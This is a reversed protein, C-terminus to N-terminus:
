RWRRPLWWHDDRAGDTPREEDAEAKLTFYVAKGTATKQFGWNASLNALLTLGRGDEADLPAHVLVPESRSSDHVSVRIWNDASTIVLQITEDERLGYTLANTILESVLLAAVYADIDLDWARIAAKVHRRAAAASAPHAPLRIRLTRLHQAAVWIPTTMDM